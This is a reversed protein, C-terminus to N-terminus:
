SNTEGHSAATVISRCDVRPAVPQRVSWVWASLKSARFRSWGRLPRRGRQFAIGLCLQLSM